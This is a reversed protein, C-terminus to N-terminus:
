YGSDKAMQIKPEMYALIESQNSIIIDRFNFISDMLKQRNDMFINHKGSFVYVGWIYCEIPQLLSKINQYRNISWKSTSIINISFPLFLRDILGMIIHANSTKFYDEYFTIYENVCFMIWKNLQNVLNNFSDIINEIHTPIPTNNTQLCGILNIKCDRLDLLIRTCDKILRELEECKYKKTTQIWIHATKRDM